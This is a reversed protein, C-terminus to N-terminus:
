SLVRFGLGLAGPKFELPCIKLPPLPTGGGGGDSGCKLYLYTLGESSRVSGSTRVTSGAGEPPVTTKSHM